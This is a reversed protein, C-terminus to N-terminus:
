ILIMGTKKHKEKYNQKIENQLNLPLRPYIFKNIICFIECPFM